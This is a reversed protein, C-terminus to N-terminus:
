RQNNARGEGPAAPPADGKAWRALDCHACNSRLPKFFYWNEFFAAGCRPCAFTAMRFGAWGIATMWVLGVVPFSADQLLLTNLLYALLFVGPLCAFLLLWLMKSKRELDRWAAEFALNTTV